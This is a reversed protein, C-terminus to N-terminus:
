LSLNIGVNLANSRMYTKLAQNQVWSNFSNQTSGEVHLGLKPAFQWRIGLGARIGFVFNSANELHKSDHTIEESNNNMTGGTWYITSIFDTATYHYTIQRQFTFDAIGYVKLNLHKKKKNQLTLIDNQTTIGLTFTTMRNDGSFLMKRSSHITDPTLKVVEAFREAPINVTGIPM